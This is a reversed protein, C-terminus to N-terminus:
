RTRQRRLAWQAIPWLGLPLVASLTLALTPHEVGASGVVAFTFAMPLSGCALALLFAGVPMRTLGAMCAVVESFLPLWRSLAVMWGGVSRFLREGRELDRAGAIRLAARRGLLRCLTYALCGSLMYGGAGILGGQLPGYTLGLVSMVATAPVPLFVDVVLLLTGFAWAWDGWELVWDGAHVLRDNWVLFPVALVVSLGVFIWFLRM